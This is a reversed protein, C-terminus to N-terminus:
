GCSAATRIRWRLFLESVAERVIGAERALYWIFNLEVAGIDLSRSKQKGLRIYPFITDEDNPVIATRHFAENRQYDNDSGENTDDGCRM